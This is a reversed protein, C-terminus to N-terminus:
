EPPKMIHMMGIEIEVHGGGRSKMKALHKKGDSKKRKCHHDKADRGHHQHHEENGKLGRCEKMM